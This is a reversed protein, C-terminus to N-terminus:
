SSSLQAASKLVTEMRQANPPHTGLFRDGPDPLRNFFQAGLVADYGAYITIRTGLRDAELEFDKSYTRAGVQAGLEEAQAIEAASAGRITAIGSFIAAATEIHAQQQELHRLIHHAAEHGMVFALEDPNQVSALLALNFALIPRGTDDVTQFANAPLGPRDDVVILFDCHTERLRRCIREAVPEVNELVELFNQATHEALGEIDNAVPASKKIPDQSVNGLTIPECAALGLIASLLLFHSRM